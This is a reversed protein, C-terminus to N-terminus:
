WYHIGQELNSKRKELFTKGELKADLWAIFDFYKLSVFENDVFLIKALEGKLTLLKLRFKEEEHTINAFRNLYNLFLNEIKYELGGESTRKKFYRKSSKIMYKLLDYNGLDFHIIISFLRAYNYIDSRVDSVSSNLIKNLWRNAEKLEGMTYYTYGINYYLLNEKEEGILTGHTKLKEKVDQIIEQAGTFDCKEDACVLKALVISVYLSIRINPRSFQPQELMNTMKDILRNFEDFEKLHIYCFLLDNLPRIVKKPYDNFIEPCADIIDLARSFAQLTHVKERKVVSIMGIICLRTVNARISLAATENQCLSSNETEDLFKLDEQNRTFGSKRFIQVVKEYKVDYDGANKLKELAEQAEEIFREYDEEGEEEIIRREWNIFKHVFYFEEHKEALKRAKQIFTKSERYLGKKFLIEIKDHEGSLKNEVSGNARNKVLNKLILNYLNTKEPPFRKIFSENKLKRKVEEEDYEKLPEIADFVKIYNKDGAQFSSTLKFLRKESKSM